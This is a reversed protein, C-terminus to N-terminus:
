SKIFETPTKGTYKKFAINFSSKSKFGVNQGHAEITYNKYKESKLNAKAEEVRYENIFNVFNKEFEKNIISSLYKSNTGIEKALKYITLDQDKYIKDDTVKKLLESKLQQFLEPVIDVREEIDNDDKLEIVEEPKSTEHVEKSNSSQAENTYIEKQNLANIGIYTIYIIMLIDFLIDSLEGKMLNVIVLGIIFVIFGVILIRIWKLDVNESYSYYNGVRKQHTQYLKYSIVIYYVSQLLFLVTISGITMFTMIQVIIEQIEKNNILFISIELILLAIGIYISPSIHKKISSSDNPYVLKKIYIWLLPSILLISSTILPILFKVVSTYGIDILFFLFIILTLNILYLNFFLKSKKNGKKLFGIQIIYLIGVVLAVISSIDETGIKINDM